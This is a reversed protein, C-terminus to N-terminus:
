EIDMMRTKLCWRNKGKHQQLTHYLQSEEFGYCVWRSETSERSRGAGLTGAKLSAAEKEKELTHKSGCKNRWCHMQTETWSATYCGNAQPLERELLQIYICVTYTQVTYILQFKLFWPTTSNPWIRSETRQLVDLTVKSFGSENSTYGLACNPCYPFDKTQWYIGM